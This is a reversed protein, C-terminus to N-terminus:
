REMVAFALSIDDGSGMDSFECLWVPILDSIKEPGYEIIREYLSKVFILLEQEDVNEFSDSLGDTFLAIFACEDRQFVKTEWRLSADDSSLSNTVNGNEFESQRFINETTGDKYVVVANGDGIRASYIMVPTILATILTTGYRTYDTDTSSFESNERVYRRWRRTSIRPFNSWFSPDGEMSSIWINFEAMEDIAAHVALSSGFHSLDHRKDGHGDAVAMAVSPDGPLDSSIFLADQCPMGNKLHFLGQVVSGGAPGTDETYVPPFLISRNNQM